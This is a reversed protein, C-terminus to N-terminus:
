AARPVRRVRKESKRSARDTRRNLVSWWSFPHAKNARMFDIAFDTAVDDVWGKTPQSVGNIEFPCNDYRGHAIYSASDDFGPHQSSQNGMHWKGIYATKYGAARLVTAHTVSNTPFPTHNNAVGNLHTYRGTLFRGVRPAYRSRSSRMAFVCVMRPWSTSTPRKSGRSGHANGKSKRYWGWRTM